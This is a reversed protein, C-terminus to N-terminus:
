WQAVIEMTRRDAEEASVGANGGAYGRSQLVLRPAVFNRGRLFKLLMTRDIIPIRRSLLETNERSFEDLPCGATNEQKYEM